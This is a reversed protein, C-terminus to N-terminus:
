WTAIERVADAFPLGWVRRVLQIGDGGEGCPFCYWLGRDLDLMLSPHNDEHLPCLGVARPGRNTIAIGIRALVRSLPIARATEVPLIGMLQRRRHSWRGRKSSVNAVLADLAQRTARGDAVPANKATRSALIGFVADQTARDKSVLAYALQRGAERLATRGIAHPDGLADLVERALSLLRRIVSVDLPMRNDLLRRRQACEHLATVRGPDTAELATPELANDPLMDAIGDPDRHVIGLVIDDSLSGLDFPCRAAIANKRM